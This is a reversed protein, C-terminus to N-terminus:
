RFGSFSGSTSRIQILGRFYGARHTPLGPDDRSRCGYLQALDYLSCFEAEGSWLLIDSDRTGHPLDVSHFNPGV